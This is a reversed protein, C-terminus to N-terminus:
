ACVDIHIVSVWPVTNMRDADHITKQARPSNDPRVGAAPPSMLLCAIWCSAEQINRKKRERVIALMVQVVISQLSGCDFEM